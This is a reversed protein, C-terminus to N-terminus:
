MINMESCKKCISDHLIQHSLVCCLVQMMNCLPLRKDVRYSTINVLLINLAVYMGQFKM